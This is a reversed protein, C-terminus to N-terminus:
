LYNKLIRWWPANDDWPEKWGGWIVAGDAYRRCQNLQYQWYADGIYGYPESPFDMRIFPYVPISPNIKRCNWIAQQLLVGWAEPTIEYAYSSPFFADVRGLVASFKTVFADLESPTQATSRPPVGYFVHRSPGLYDLKSQVLEMLEPTYYERELDFFMLDNKQIYPKLKEENLTMGDFIFNQNCNRLRVFGAPM